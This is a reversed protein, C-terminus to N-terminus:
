NVQQLCQAERGPYCNSRRHQCMWCRLLCHISVGSDENAQYAFPWQVRDSHPLSLGDEMMLVTAVKHGATAEVGASLGCM